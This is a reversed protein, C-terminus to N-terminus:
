INRLDVVTQLIRRRFMRETRRTNAPEAAYRRDELDPLLPAEYKTDRRDTRALTTLRVHRLVPTRPPVTAPQVARWREDGPEDDEQSLCWEDIAPDPAARVAGDDDVDVGLAVQLDLVNDAIDLRANALDSGYPVETGPYVRARALRPAPESTDDGPVSFDERVYFRHEELVGVFAVPDLRGPGLQQYLDAYQDGAAHFVVEVGRAIGAATCVDSELRTADPDLQVVAYTEDSLPSVLILAEPIGGGPANKAREIWSLDQPFGSPTESCIHISGGDDALVVAQDLASHIQYIPTAFVGRVTVVDTGAVALPSDPWGVVVERPVGDQGVNNRIEIAVGLPLPRGASTHPLGGRGAMRLLRVMEHQGVRLSQQMDAIQTQVRALRSNFDFLTLAGVILVVTVGLSVLLELLSFGAQARAASTTTSATSVRKATKATKM